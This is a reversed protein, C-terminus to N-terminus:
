RVPRIEFLRYEYGELDANLSGDSLAGADLEQAKGFTVDKVRIRQPIKFGLAEPEVRWPVNRRRAANVNSLV